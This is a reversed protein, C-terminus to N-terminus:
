TVDMRRGLVKRVCTPRMAPALQELQGLHGM